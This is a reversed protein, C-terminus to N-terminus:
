HEQFMIDYIRRHKYLSCEFQFLNMFKKSTMTTISYIKKITEKLHKIHLKSIFTIKTLRRKRDKRIVMGEEISTYKIQFIRNMKTMLVLKRAWLMPTSKFFGRLCARKTNAYFFNSISFKWFFKM